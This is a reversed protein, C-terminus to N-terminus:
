RAVSPLSRFFSAVEARQSAIGFRERVRHHAASRMGALVEPKDLTAGLWEVLETTNHPDVLFGTKGHDILLRGTPDDTLVPVAGLNMAELVSHPYWFTDKFRHPLLFFRVRSFQEGLDNVVGIVDTADDLGRRALETDIWRRGPGEELAPVALLLRVGRIRSLEQTLQLVFELGRDQMLYRPLSERFETTGNMFFLDHNPETQRWPGPLFVIGPSRLSGTGPHCFPPVVSAMRRWVVGM